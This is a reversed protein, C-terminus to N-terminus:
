YPLKSKIYNVRNLIYYLYIRLGSQFLSQHLNHFDKHLAKSCTPVIYVSLFLYTVNKKFPMTDYSCKVNLSFMSLLDEWEKHIELLDSEIVM